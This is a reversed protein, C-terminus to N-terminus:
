DGFPQDSEGAAEAEEGAADDPDNPEDYFSTWFDAGAAVPLGAEEIGAFGPFYIWIDTFGYAELIICLEEAIDCENSTCYVVLPAGLVEMLRDMHADIEDPPVNLVPPESNLHLHGEEYAERPRADIIVAGEDILELMRELSVGASERLTAHQAEKLKLAEVDMIWPMHKARILGAGAAVFVIICLRLLFVRM